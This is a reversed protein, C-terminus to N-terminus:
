KWIHASIDAEKVFGVSSSRSDASHNRNDGMVFYADKPVQWEQDETQMPEKIFDDELLKGDAFVEGNRIQITEGPLGIVRKVLLTNSCHFTIIDYREIKRPHRLGAIVSGPRITPEMSETPVFSIQIVQTNLLFIGIVVAVLVGLQRFTNWIWHQKRKKKM